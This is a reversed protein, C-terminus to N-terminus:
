QELPLYRFEASFSLAANFKNLITTGASMNDPLSPSVAGKSWNSGAVTLVFNQDNSVSGLANMIRDIPLNSNQGGAMPPLNVLLTRLGQVFFSASIPGVIMMAGSTLRGRLADDFFRPMMNMELIHEVVM